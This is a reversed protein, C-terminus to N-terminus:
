EIKRLGIVLRRGLNNYDYLDVIEYSKGKYVIRDKTTIGAMRCRLIADLYHTTKNFLIKEGGSKWKITCQMNAYLTVPTKGTGMGGTTKTDRIVDVLCNYVKLRNYTSTATFTKSNVHISFGAMVNVSLNPRQSVVDSAHM